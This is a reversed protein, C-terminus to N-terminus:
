KSKLEVSVVEPRNFLRIPIVSNGLGRSIIMTTNGEKHAGETYEPLFGQDPAVIGGIFPLRFQGGHAHGSLVLDVNTRSYQKIYQPEHALLVILEKEFDLEKTMESLQNNLLSKEALGMLRLGDEGNGIFISKDDLIETGTREMQKLLSEKVEPEVWEEHNGTIYYVPAITVALEMFEIAIDVDTHNSDIVDGTVVIIDPEQKKILDIIKQQNAGFRKNHLDSVQIIKFGDLEETVKDSVCNYETLMLGNNQWYCFPILLIILVIFIIAKKTPKFHFKNEAM